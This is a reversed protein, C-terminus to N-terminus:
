RRGRFRTSLAVAALAPDVEPLRVDIAVREAAAARRCARCLAGITPDVFRSCGQTACPTFRQLARFM